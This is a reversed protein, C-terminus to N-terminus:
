FAAERLIDNNIIHEDIAHEGLIWIVEFIDNRNVTFSVDKLADITQKKKHFSKSVQRFEIM